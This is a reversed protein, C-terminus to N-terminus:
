WLNTYSEFMVTNYIWITVQSLPIGYKQKLKLYLFSYKEQDLLSLSPPLKLKTEKVHNEECWRCLTTFLKEHLWSSTVFCNSPAKSNDDSSNFNRIGLEHFLTENQSFTCATIIGRGSNACSNKALDSTCTNTFQIMYTINESSPSFNDSNLPIFIVCNKADIVFEYCIKCVDPRRPVLKRLYSQVGVNECTLRATQIGQCSLCQVQKSLQHLSHAYQQTCLPICDQNALSMDLNTLDIQLPKLTCCSIIKSCVNPRKLWVSVSDDFSKFDDNLKYSSLIKWM